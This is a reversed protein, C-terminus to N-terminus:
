SPVKEEDIDLVKREKEKEKEKEGHRTQDEVTESSDRDVESHASGDRRDRM